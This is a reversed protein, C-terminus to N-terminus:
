GTRRYSSRVNYVGADILDVYKAGNEDTPFKGGIGTIFGNIFALVDGDSTDVFRGKFLAPDFAPITVRGISGDEMRFRFLAKREVESGADPTNQGLAFDPAFSMRAGRENIAANSCDRLTATYSAAETLAEGILPVARGTATMKFVRLSMAARRGNKDVFFHEIEAHSRTWAM